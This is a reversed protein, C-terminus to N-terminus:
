NVGLDNAKAPLTFRFNSGKGEESEAWLKGDHKEVFDKCIFLGLGASSEGETGKHSLNAGLLFLNDLMEKKMGIGTDRISIEVTNNPAAVATITVKGEKHTFKVANSVLNHMVSEFMRKDALVTLNDPIDCSIEIMKKEAKDRILALIESIAEPLLIQVPNFSILGRQMQSWELLNELLSYLKHASTRMNIALRQIKELPYSLLLEPMEPTFGLLTQFPSRLDHAIISFFKDKEANLRQLEANKLNIEKEARTQITIDWNTGIMRLPNGSKDRYVATLARIIHVTSDPWVVKFQVNFDHEGNLAMQIEEDVRKVDDPHVCALWAEYAGSFNMKDMGYLEFMQDDWILVNNVADYDWVGVGGARTALQLRTTLQNLREELQKRETIDSVFHLVATEGKWETKRGNLEIWALSGDKKLIRFHYRSDVAEGKQRKRYNNEVLERDEPYVMEMNPMMMLEETSYGTIEAMPENVFMFSAGQVIMIGEPSTEVLIRYQRESENVKKELVRRETIDISYGAMLYKGASTIPYKISYYIHDNFVEELELIKGGSVVSWDDATMTAALEAPFLEYMNKGAMESGPIGVIERYNDSAKLVRSETPTVEKIFAFIPSHNLFSSLLVNVKQLEEEAQKRILVDGIHMAIEELRDIMEPTFCDKRRDNFQILGINRSMTKIPILAVSAYGQHICVNRPHLRPDEDSSISLFPYSDNTWISGWATFLPNVPETKGSIVLGCTCELKIIGKTDRCLGGEKTRSVLTNETFLFDTSFGNQAIYPFDDGDQLRIGVADFGSRIKLMNLLRQMNDHLTGPENLIELIEHHIEKFMAAQRSVTINRSVGDLRVITNNKGFIVKSRDNIWVITGDPRVIRCERVASGEKLLQEFAQDSIQKDDPHVMTAWLSTDAIFDQVPRGFLQEASQSIYKVTLDPWSLSWVVDQIDNLIDMRQRESEHLADEMHRRETIDTIIGHWLVSGDEELQPIGEGYHTRISGDEFKLRYECQWIALNKASEQISAYFSELDLPHVNAFFSFANKCIEEPTVRYMQIIAESSYPFCSSGDPFLLYQFVVGPVLSTIKQLRDRQNSVLKNAVSLEEARKEKEDNQFLLEINALNLEDARLNKEDNQFALEKIALVLEAALNAKEDNQFQLEINALSLENARDTKEDNQFLLELNAIALEDARHNKEDNQFLLEKNAVILEEAREANEDNQFALQNNALVLEAARESAERIEISLEEVTTELLLQLEIQHVELEHLLKLMEGETLSVQRIPRKQLIAEAEQRLIESKSKM